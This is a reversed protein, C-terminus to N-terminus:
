RVTNRVAGSKYHGFRGHLRYRSLVGSASIHRRTFRQQSPLFSMTVSSMHQWRVFFRATQSLTSPLLGDSKEYPKSRPSRAYYRQLRRIRDTYAGFRDHSSLGHRWHRLLYTM